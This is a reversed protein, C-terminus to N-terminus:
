NVARALQRQQQEVFAQLNSNLTGTAAAGAFAQRAQENEGLARLSIGLGMLWVANRPMLTLASRYHAVAEEHRKARQLVAAMFSLYRADTGVYAKIDQLTRIASELDGREVQLRALVMAQNPQRPNASLSDALVEEADDLRGADILIGVLAQQAANHSRDERIAARFHTEAEVMRGGRLSAVGQRFANEAREFATLQRAQKEVSQLPLDAPIVVQELPEAGASKRHAPTNAPKSPSASISAVNLEGSKPPKQGSKEKTTTNAAPKRNPSPNPITVAVDNRNSKAVRPTKAQQATTKKPATPTSKAPSPERQAAVAPLASLEDSLQFVPIMLAAEVRAQVTTPSDPQKAPATDTAVSSALEAPGTWIGTVTERFQASGSWLVFSVAVAGGLAVLWIAPRRWKGATPATVPRVQDPMEAADLPGDRRKELDQLVRNILSM